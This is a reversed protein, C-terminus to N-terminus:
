PTPAPSKFEPARRTDTIPMREADILRQIVGRVKLSMRDTKVALENQRSSGYDVWKELEDLVTKDQNRIVLDSAGLYNGFEDDGVRFNRTQISFYHTTTKTEPTIGHIFYVEGIGGEPPMNRNEIPRAIPGSISVLEPGFFESVAYVNRIEEFRSEEGWLMSFYPNWPMRMVQTLRVLDSLEEIEQDSNLLSDGGAVQNHVHPLHTLDFVNDVLLQPRAKLQIYDHGSVAWGPQDLGFKRYDPIQNEDAKEPNGMWIWILTGREVLPYTPQYYGAGTQQSPIRVCKGDDGFAFGHYPCVLADGDIKGLGLPFYRHPCIGYMAIARGSSNRYIAVPTELITRQIPKDSLESSFAAIYWRNHPFCYDAPFPYM